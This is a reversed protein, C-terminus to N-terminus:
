EEYHGEAILDYRPEPRPRIAGTGVIHYGARKLADLAIEQDEEVWRYDAPDLNRAQIIAEAMITIITNHALDTM